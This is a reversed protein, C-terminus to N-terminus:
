GAIVIRRAGRAVVRSAGLIEGAKVAMFMSLALGIGLVAVDTAVAVIRLGAVVAMRVSLM